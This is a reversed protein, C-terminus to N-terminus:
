SLNVWDELKLGPIRSFEKFNHTIVTLDRALAQGAIQIDYPGIPSGQQAMLARLYGTTAADHADFPISTFPALFSYLKDRTRDSWRSKAAGYELEYITIASIAINDPSENLLRKTLSPFSDKMVYICINTDLLYM